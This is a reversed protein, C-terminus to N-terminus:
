KSWRSIVLPSKDRVGKLTVSPHLSLIKNAFCFRDRRTSLNIETLCFLCVRCRLRELLMPVDPEFEPESEGFDVVLEDAEDNVNEADSTRLCSLFIRFLCDAIFLRSLIRASTSTSFSFILLYM